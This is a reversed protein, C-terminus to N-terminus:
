QIPCQQIIIIIIVNMFSISIHYLNLESNGNYGLQRCVVSADKDDWFDDCVAGWVGFLCIEVRGDHPTMGDVLRVDTENCHTDTLVHCSTVFYHSM